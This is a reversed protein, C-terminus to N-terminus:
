RRHIAWSTNRRCQARPVLTQTMRAIDSAGSAMIIYDPKAAKIKLVLPTFDAEGRRHSRQRRDNRRGCRRGGKRRSNEDFSTVRTNVLFVSGAGYKKLTWEALGHFQDVV